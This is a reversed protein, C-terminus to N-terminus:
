GRWGYITLEGQLFSTGMEPWGDAYVLAQMEMLTATM